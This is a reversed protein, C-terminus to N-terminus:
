RRSSRFVSVPFNEQIFEPTIRTEDNEHAEICGAMTRRNKDEKTQLLGTNRWDTLYEWFNYSQFNRCRLRNNTSYITHKPM